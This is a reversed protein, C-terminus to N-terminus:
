RCHRHTIIEAISGAEGVRIFAVTGSTGKFREPTSEEQVGEPFYGLTIHPHWVSGIFPYGFRRVNESEQSSLIINERDAQQTGESVFYQSLGSVASEHLKVLGATKQIDWFLFKGGYSSISELSFVVPLHAALINLSKDVISSPLKDFKSHYLTIHPKHRGDFINLLNGAVYRAAIKKVQHETMENLLLVVGYQGSYKEDTEM